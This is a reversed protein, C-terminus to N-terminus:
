KKLLWILALIIIILCGISVFVVFPDKVFSKKKIEDEIEYPLIIETKCEPCVYKRKTRTYELIAYYIDFIFFPVKGKQFEGEYQCNPCKFKMIIKQKEHLNTHNRPM